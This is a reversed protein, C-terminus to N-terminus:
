TVELGNFKQFSTNHTIMHEYYISPLYPLWVLALFLATGTHAKMSAKCSLLGPKGVYGDSWGLESWKLTSVRDKKVSQISM